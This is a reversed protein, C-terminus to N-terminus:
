GADSLTAVLLAKITHMRNEAQDFVISAPSEFVTDSVEIGLKNHARFFRDGAPTGRDHFAPLCHMFKVAPNGSAALMETDVRYPLLLPVRTEWVEPDEGMSLWIDTYIFDCGRVAERPDESITIRAGSQGALQDARDVVQAEPMLARPSAIRIDMGMLAGSILLSNGINFRADGLYAISIDGLPKDSHEVITLLDALMQTPHAQDSLGNYVPVGAYRALTEVTEQDFGRYEIADYYRGLVRATDAVSEKEGLQASGPAIYTTAAGQDAAAVAFACRTRTSTKTFILAINRGALRRVEIGKRKATKLQAALRLLAEISERSHDQIRLFHRQYWDNM